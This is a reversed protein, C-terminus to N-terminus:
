IKFDDDSLHQKHSEFGLRVLKMVSSFGQRNDSAGHFVLSCDTEPNLHQCLDRTLKTVNEVADEIEKFEFQEICEQGLAVDKDVHAIKKNRFARVRELDEFIQKRRREFEVKKDGEGCYTILNGLSAIKKGSAKAKSVINTLELALIALLGNRYNQFFLMSTDNMTQVDEEGCFWAASFEGWLENIWYTHKMLAHLTATPLKHGLESEAM